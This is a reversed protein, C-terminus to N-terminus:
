AGGWEKMLAEDASTYKRKFDVLHRNRGYWEQDQKDLKKGRALHDRIRVVQAFTCDGIEQYASCFTFWHVGGTNNEYDYGVSRIEYCLVRNIAGIVIDFDQEWDVLRPNKPANEDRKGCNIFDICDQIAEEYHESPMEEFEPYFMNLLVYSRGQGDLEPDNLAEFITLIVSYDYRVKYETGGIKVSKPLGYKVTLM